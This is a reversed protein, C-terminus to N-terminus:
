VVKFSFFSKKEKELAVDGTTKKQSCLGKM